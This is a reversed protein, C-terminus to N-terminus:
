SNYIVTVLASVEVLVKFRDSPFYQSMENGLYSLTESYFSLMEICSLTESYTSLTESYTSLTMIM